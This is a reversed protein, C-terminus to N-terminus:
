FLPTQDEAGAQTSAKPLGGLDDRLNKRLQDDEKLVEEALNGLFHMQCRQHPADPWCSKFAAAITEEGDSLTALVPFAPDQYTNLWAALEVSTVGEVQLAAVPKSSLVEYLVYLLSGCGEPELADMAWIVGGHRKVTEELVRRMEAQMGGLLALFQRYQQGVTSGNIEVGYGNLERQIEVMQKHEHEHRWGIYAVVDLGYSSHPLSILWVGSAHYHEGTHSCQPNVCEKSKGVLKVVGKMTQVTKRVVWPRRSRLPMGCHPCVGLECDFTMREMKEFRRKPRHKARKEM